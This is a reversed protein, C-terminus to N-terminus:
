LSCFHRLEAQSQTFIFLTVLRNEKLVKVKSIASDLGAKLTLNVDFPTWWIEDIEKLKAFGRKIRKMAISEGDLFLSTQGLAM